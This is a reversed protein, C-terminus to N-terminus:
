ISATNILVNSVYMQITQDPDNSRSWKKVNPINSSSSTFMQCFDTDNSVDTQVMQYFQVM